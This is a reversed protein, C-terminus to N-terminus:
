HMINTTKSRRAICPVFMLSRINYTIERNPDFPQQLIQATKFKENVTEAHSVFAYLIHSNIIYM